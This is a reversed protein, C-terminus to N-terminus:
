LKRECLFKMKATQDDVFVSGFEGTKGQDNTSSPAPLDRIDCRSPGLDSSNLVMELGV